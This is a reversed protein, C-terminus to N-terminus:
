AAPQANHYRKWATCANGLNLGTRQVIQHWTVNQNRWEAIQPAWTDMLTPKGLNVVFAESYAGNVPRLTTLLSDPLKGELVKALAPWGDLTIHLRTFGRTKGPALVSEATIKGLLPRLHRAAQALEQDLWTSLSELQQRIWDETPMQIQAMRVAQLDEIRKELAPKQAELATLRTRVAVSDQGKVLFDILREAQDSNEHLRLQADDLEQPVSRALQELRARTADAAAKLWDPYAKLLTTLLKLVATEAQDIRVGAGMTCKGIRHLPCAVRKLGGRHVLLQSGCSGCHILGGLLSKEYLLLYHQRPGRKKGTPKQGYIEHLAALRAKARNWIAADIIRLSPREVTTVTQDARAKVQKKRNNGDRVMTTRGFTWIGIYKTNQLIRRIHGHCIHTNTIKPFELRHAEWWRAISSISDGDVFRQFIEQVVKTASPEIVVVKKPKPGRGRYALAGQPDVYQSTYGYPYDGASGDGDGVRGEQGGRVREATDENSRSHHIESFGVIMKWGKQFTDIGETISIFRGGHFIIDKILATTNDGRSLRSQETVVVIGLRKSHMLKKLQQFGPRAECTGSMAEDSLVIFNGLPIGRRDLGDRCRRAQDQISETRQLESSFRCYIM